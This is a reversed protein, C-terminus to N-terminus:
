VNVHLPVVRVLALRAICMPRQSALAQLFARFEVQMAVLLKAITVATSQALPRAQADSHWSAVCGSRARRHEVEQVLRSAGFAHCSCRTVFVVCANVCASTTLLQDSHLAFAYYAETCLTSRRTGSRLCRHLVPIRARASKCRALM